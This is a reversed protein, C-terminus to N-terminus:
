TRPAAASLSHKQIQIWSYSVACRLDIPRETDCLKHQPKTRHVIAHHIIAVQSKKMSKTQLFYYHRRSATAFAGHNHYCSFPFVALRSSVSVHAAISIVWLVTFAGARHLWILGDRMGIAQLDQTRVM